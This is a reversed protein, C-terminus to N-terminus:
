QLSFLCYFDLKFYVKWISKESGKVLFNFIICKSELQFDGWYMCLCYFDLKIYVLFGTQRVQNKWISKSSILYMDVPTLAAFMWLILTFVLPM